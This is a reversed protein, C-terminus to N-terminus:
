FVNCCAAGKGGKKEGGKGGNKGKNGERNYDSDLRGEAYMGEGWSADSPVRVEIEEAKRVPSITEPM